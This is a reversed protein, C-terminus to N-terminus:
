HAARWWRGQQTPGLKKTGLGVTPCPKGPELSKALIAAQSDLFQQYLQQYAQEQQQRQQEAKDAEQRLQQGHTKDTELQEMAAALEGLEEQQEQRRQIESNLVEVHEQKQELEAKKQTLTQRQEVKAALSKEGTQWAQQAADCQKQALKQAKM